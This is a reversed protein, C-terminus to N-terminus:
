PKTQDPAVVLFSAILDRIEADPITEGKTVRKALIEMSKHLSRDDVKAQLIIEPNETGVEEWVSRVQKWFSATKDWYSKAMAFEGEPVRLYSNLGVERCLPFQKGDRKVWKENDQEHYWGNATITQRNTVRLIDYDNRSSYERRPLPRCTEGSTWVSAGPHHVWIGSSEYRPEDTTGTVRQTWTGRTATEALKQKEWTNHGQFNLIDRDQYTWIQSWHKVVIRDVQLVHQLIITTGKDEAVSVTEFAEEKYPKGITQYGTHLPVTEHFFFNVEFDGTMGLIAKRDQEFAASPADAAHLTVTSFIAGAILSSTIPNMPFLTNVRCHFPERINTM